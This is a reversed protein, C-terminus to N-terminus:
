AVELQLQWTKFKKVANINLIMKM